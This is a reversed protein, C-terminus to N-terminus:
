RRDRRRRRDLRVVDGNEIVVRRSCRADGRSNPMRRDSAAGRWAGPDRGAAAGDSVDRDARRPVSPRLRPRFPGRGTVVEVRLQLLANHLRGIAKENGPIIRSSFIVVDGEELVIHPHDDRAIRALAARPEGQSGTCILVIKDRPVYGAEDETLFRPVDALYGNERAAKDIRWLSRGVLAVDRDNAARPM